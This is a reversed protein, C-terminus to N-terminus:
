FLTGSTESAGGDQSVRGVGGDQCLRRLMGVLSFVPHLTGVPETFSGAHLM